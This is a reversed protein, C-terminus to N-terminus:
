AALRASLPSAQTHHEDANEHKMKREQAPAYNIEDKKEGRLRQAKNLKTHKTKRFAEETRSM